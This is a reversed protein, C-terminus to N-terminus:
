GVSSLGREGREGEYRTWLQWPRGDEFRTSEMDGRTLFLFGSVWVYVYVCDGATM